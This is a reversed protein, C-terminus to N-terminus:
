NSLVFVAEDNIHSRRTLKNSRKVETRENGEFLTSPKNKPKRSSNFRPTPRQYKTGTRVMMKFHCAKRFSTIITKWDIHSSFRIIRNECIMM